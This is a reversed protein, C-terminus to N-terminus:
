ATTFMGYPDNHIALITAASLISSYVYDHMVYMTPSEHSKVGRGLTMETPPVQWVVGTAANTSNAHNLVGNVYINMTYADTATREWTIAVTSETNLPFDDTTGGASTEVLEGSGSLIYFRARWKNTQSVIDIDWSNVGTDGVDSIFTASNDSDTHKFRIIRTGSEGFTKGAAIRAMDCNDADVTNNIYFGDDSYTNPNEASAMDISMITGQGGGTSKLWYLTSPSSFDIGEPGAIGSARYHKEPYGSENFVSIYMNATSNWEIYFKDGRKYFGQVNYVPWNISITRDVVCGGTVADSLTCVYIDTIVSASYIVFYLENKNEDVAVGSIRYGSSSFDSFSGSVITLDTNFLYIGGPNGGPDNIIPAVIYGTGGINAYQIDGIHDLGSVSADSDVAACPNGGVFSPNTGDATPTAGIASWKYLNNTDSTYWSTGDYTVGNHSLVDGSTATVHDEGASKGFLEHVVISPYASSDAYDRGDTHGISTFVHAHSLNAAGAHSSDIGVIKPIHAYTPSFNVKSMM